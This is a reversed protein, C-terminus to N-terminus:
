WLGPAYYVMPVGNPLEDRAVVEAETRGQLPALLQGIKTGSSFSPMFAGADTHEAFAQQAFEWDGLEDVLGNDLAQQGTFPRGDGLERAKSESMSRGQAVLEVFRDYNEDVIGQYVAAQENTIEVGEIGVAKNTGSRLLVTRVGMGEYMVSTDVMAIYVGISGTLTNHNAIIYDAAACIYYGGSACTTSMYAWVPRGTKEKYQELARYVEDSEYVGGGPTDLYLLIGKNGNDGTLQKIYNVTADHYYSPVNVGLADSGARQINGVVQIVSFTGSPANVNPQAPAFLSNFGSVATLMLGCLLALLVVTALMLAFIGTEIPRRNEKKQVGAPVPGAPQMAMGGGIPPPPSGGGGYAGGSFGSGPNGTQSAGRNSTYGATGAPQWITRGAQQVPMPAAAPASYGSVLPPEKGAEQAPRGLDVRGFPDQQGTPQGDNQPGAPPYGGSYPTNNEM